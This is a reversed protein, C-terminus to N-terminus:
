LVKMTFLLHFSRGALPYGALDSTREDTLNNATFSLKALSRKLEISMGTNLYFRDSVSVLNANDLFNGAIWESDLFVSLEELAPIEKVYGEARVYWKSAPRFPLHRDKRAEIKGTNIADLLTFNGNLRLHGFLDSRLGAEVGWMRARDVNEAKAINQSTQVFQILNTVDSYFGYVELRLRYPDPLMNSDYIIGGDVNYASESKLEPNGIVRGSNGFLEFLSPLRVARGGSVTLKTDPISTNVLAVRWSWETQESEIVLPQNGSTVEKHALHSDAWEVRGSPLVLLDAADILFGTELGASITHRDSQAASTSEVSPEFREYRYAAQASVDWWSFPELKLATSLLPSFSRDEADDGTLGIEDLPDSFTSQTYRFGAQFSWEALGALFEGKVSLVSLSDMVGYQSEETEFQGLGPVGQDRWFFWEMLSLTWQEDLHLRIKGLLNIQDFRNNQRTVRRDDTSDFRTGNDNIYPFTGEWGSYDLGLALDWTDQPESYFLRAERAGFSGGGVTLTLQRERATRTTISLTGGIASSGFALPSVGRYIEVREINGLPIRSLDVPGGAASNLPVGDLVVLVQDSTSGRISLTSFSAPGGLKTVRVGAQQDLVDPMTDGADDFDEPLLVSGSAARDQRLDRSERAARIMVPAISFTEDGGEVSEDDDMMEMEAEINNEQVSDDSNEPPTEGAFSPSVLCIWLWLGSIIAYNRM